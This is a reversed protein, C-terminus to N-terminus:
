EKGTLLMVQSAVCQWRDGRLIWTDTFLYSRNFGAGAKTKGVEKASGSAVVVDKDFARVTLGNNKASAYTDTDAKFEKLLAAKNMRKGRSSVGIFDKAVRSDLFSADHKMVATEWANELRKVNSEPSGKDPGTTASSEATSTSEESTQAAAAAPKKEAAAAAPSAKPKPTATATVTASATAEPSASTTDRLSSPAQMSTASNEEPSAEPSAGEDQAHLLTVTGLAILLSFILRMLAADYQSYRRM